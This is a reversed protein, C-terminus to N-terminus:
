GFASSGVPGSVRELPVAGSIDPYMDAFTADKDGIILGRHYVHFDQPPYLYCGAKAYLGSGGRAPSNNPCNIAGVEAFVPRRNRYISMYGLTSYSWGVEVQIDEWVDFRFPWCVERRQHISADAVTITATPDVNRRIVWWLRGWDDYTIQLSLAPNGGATDAPSTDPVQHLQFVLLHKTGAALQGSLDQSPVKCAFRYRRKSNNETAGPVSEGVWDLINAYDNPVVETRRGSATEPDGDYFKTLLAPYGDEQVLSVRDGLTVDDISETAGVYGNTQVRWFDTMGTLTGDLGWSKFIMGM